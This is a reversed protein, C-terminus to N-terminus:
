CASTFFCCCRNANYEEEECSAIFASNLNGKVKIEKKFVPSTCIRLFPAIEESDWGEIQAIETDQAVSKPKYIVDSSYTSDQVNRLLVSYQDIDEASWSSEDDPLNPLEGLTTVGEPTISLASSEADDIVQYIKRLSDDRISVHSNGGIDYAVIKNDFISVRVRRKGYLQNLPSIAKSMVKHSHM